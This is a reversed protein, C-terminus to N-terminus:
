RVTPAGVVAIEHQQLEDYFPLDPRPQPPADLHWVLLAGAVDSALEIAHTGRALEFPQDTPLEVGDIRLRPAPADPRRIVRYHGPVLVEFDLTTAARGDLGRGPVMVPGHYAVYREHWFKKLEAPFPFLRLTHSGLMYAIPRERFQQQMWRVNTESNPGGFHRLVSLYMLVPMPEEPQRCFLGGELQFGQETREFSHQIFAYSSRQIAQADTLTRAAGPLWLLVLMAWIGLQAMRRVRPKQFMQFIADAGLAVGVALFAALTMWFYAFASRHFLAVLLGLGLVLWAPGVHTSPTARRMAPLTAVLLLGLLLLHPPHKLLIHLYTAYGFVDGHASLSRMGKSLDQGFGSAAPTDVSLAHAGYFAGVLAASVALALGLRTAITRWRPAAGVVVSLVTALAAVYVAKQSALFGVGLLAGGLAVLPTRSRLLLVAGWIAAALALQDTRIQLSWRHFVPSLCVLAAGLAANHFPHPSGARKLADRLLVFLGLVYLGTLAQWLLRATHLVAVEDLCDAVLPWLVLVALGPRGGGVLAGSTISRQVRDLLSLEDWNFAETHGAVVRCALVCAAGLLVAAAGWRSWSM